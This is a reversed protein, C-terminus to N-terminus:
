LSEFCPRGNRCDRPDVVEKDPGIKMATASCWCDGSADLLDEEELAPGQLFYYKKSRLHVCFPSIPPQVPEPM